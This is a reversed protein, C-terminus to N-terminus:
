LYMDPTHFRQCEVWHHLDHGKLFLDENPWGNSSPNGCCGGGEVEENRQARGGARRELLVCAARTHRVAVWLRLRFAESLLLRLLLFLFLLLFLSPKTFSVITTICRQTSNKYDRAAASNKQTQNTWQPPPLPTQHHHGRPLPISMKWLFLPLAFANLLENHNPRQKLSETECAPISSFPRGNSSSDRATRQPTPPFHVCVPLIPCVVCVSISM